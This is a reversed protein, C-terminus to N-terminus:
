LFCLIPPTTNHEVYYRYILSLMYLDLVRMTAQFLLGSWFSYQDTVVNIVNAKISPTCTHTHLANELLSFMNALIFLIPSGTHDYPFYFALTLHREWDEIIKLLLCQGSYRKRFACLLNSLIITEFYITIMTHNVQAHVMVSM